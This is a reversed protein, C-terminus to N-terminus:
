KSHCRVTYTFPHTELPLVIATTQSVCSGLNDCTVGNWLAPGYDKGGGSPNDATARYNFQDDDRAKIIPALAIVFFSTLQRFTM